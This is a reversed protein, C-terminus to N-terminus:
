APNLHKKNIIMEFGNIFMDMDGNKDPDTLSYAIDGSDKFIFLVRYDKIQEPTYEKPNAPFKDKVHQSFGKSDMTFKKDRKIAKRFKAMDMSKIKVYKM